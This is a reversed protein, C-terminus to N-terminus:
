SLWSAPLVDRSKQSPVIPTPPCIDPLKNPQQQNANSTVATSTHEMAHFDAMDLAFSKKLKAQLIAMERAIFGESSTTLPSPVPLPWTPTLHDVISTTDSPLPNNLLKKLWTRFIDMESDFFTKCQEMTITEFTTELTSVPLILRHSLKRKNNLFTPRLLIEVATTSIM